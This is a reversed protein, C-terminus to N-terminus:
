CRAMSTCCPPTIPMETWGSPLSRTFARPPSRTALLYWNIVGYKPQSIQYSSAPWHTFASNSFAPSFISYWRTTHTQIHDYTKKRAPQDCQDQRRRHDHRRRRTAGLFFLFWLQDHYTGARRATHIM